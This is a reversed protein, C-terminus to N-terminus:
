SSRGGAPGSRGSARTARRGAPGCTSAATSLYQCGNVCTSTHGSPLEHFTVLRLDAPDRADVLYVGAVSDDSATTGDYARPDRAMIVLKRRQDVDMDENQWFTGSTDGPLKLEESTLRDLLVPRAPDALDYTQLGFRGNVVMVDRRNRGHGYRLFNISTAQVAEPLNAVLEVNDIAGPPQSAPEQAVAPLLGGAVMGLAVLLVILTRRM